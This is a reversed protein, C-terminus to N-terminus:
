VVFPDRRFPGLIRHPYYAYVGAGYTTGQGAVLTSSQQIQQCIQLDFTGHNIRHAGLLLM